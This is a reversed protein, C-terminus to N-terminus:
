GKLSIATNTIARLYITATHEAVRLSTVAISAWEPPLWLDWLAAGVLITLGGKIGEVVLTKSKWAPKTKM